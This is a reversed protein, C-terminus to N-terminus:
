YSESAPCRENVAGGAANHIFNFQPMVAIGDQGDRERSPHLLLRSHFLSCLACLPSSPFAGYVIGTLAINSPMNVTGNSLLSQWSPKWALTTIKDIIYFANDIWKGKAAPDTEQEALLLLANAVLAAASSDAARPAPTLPANFDRFCYTLVVILNSGRTRVM